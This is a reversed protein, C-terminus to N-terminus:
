PREKCIHGRVKCAEDTCGCSLNYTELQMQPGWSVAGHHHAMDGRGKEAEGFYRRWPLVNVCSVYEPMAIWKELRQPGTSALVDIRGNHQRCWGKLGTRVVDNALDMWFPHGPVSAMLSNQVWENFKWRSEVVHLPLDDSGLTFQGPPATCEYDSDRYIGGYTHLILYRCCWYCSMLRLQWHEHKAVMHSQCCFMSCCM